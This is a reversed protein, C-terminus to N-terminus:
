SKSGLHLRRGAERHVQRRQGDHDDGEVAVPADDVGGLLLEGVFLYPM